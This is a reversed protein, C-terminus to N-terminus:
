LDMKKVNPGWGFTNFTPFSDSKQTLKRELKSQKRDMEPKINKTLKLESEIGIEREEWFVELYKLVVSETCNM